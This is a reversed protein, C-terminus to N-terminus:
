IDLCDPYKREALRVLAAWEREARPGNNPDGWKAVRELAEESPVILEQRSAMADVQVKCASETQYLYSFCEGANRGVTLLGHNNLILIYKGGLDRALADCEEESETSVDYPHYATQPIVENAQQSIPLLGCKMASVAIGARSHTHAVFNVDARAKLVASHIAHGAQNVPFDGTVVAGDLSVKILNGATVEEFMLGYPNILYNEPEGPVRASIHTYLFDTWGYHVFSRYLVALDRRAKREADSMSEFAKSEIVSM